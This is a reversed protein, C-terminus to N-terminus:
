DSRLYMASVAHREQRYSM